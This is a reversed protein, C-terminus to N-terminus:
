LLGLAVRQVAVLNQRPCAACWEHFVATAHQNVPWATRLGDGEVALRVHGHM